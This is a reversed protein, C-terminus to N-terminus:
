TGHSSPHGPARRQERRPGPPRAHEDDARRASSRLERTRIARRRRAPTTTPRGRGAAGGERRDAPRNVRGVSQLMRAHSTPWPSATSAGSPPARDREDVGSGVRLREVAHRSRAPM